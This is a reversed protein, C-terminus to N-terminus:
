RKPPKGFWFAELTEIAQLTIEQLKILSKAISKGELAKGKGFLITATAYGKRTIEANGPPFEFFVDHQGEGVGLGGGGGIFINNAKDEICFDCISQVSVVPILLNHKDANDLSSIAWLCLDGTDHIGIKDALLIALEPLTKKIAGYTVHSGLNNRDKAMPFAIQSRGIGLNPIGKLLEVMMHDLSSRLNHVIDGIVLSSEPPPGEVSLAKVLQRGTKADKEIGIRCFDTNLFSQFVTELEQIHRNARKIKLRASGFQNPSIM